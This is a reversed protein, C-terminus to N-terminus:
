SRSLVGRLGDAFLDRDREVETTSRRQLRERERGLTEIEQRMDRGVIDRKFSRRLFTFSSDLRVMEELLRMCPIPEGGDAVTLGGFGFEVHHFCERVREVTGDVVAEFISRAGRSIRLDNLGVYVLDIATKAIESSVDVAEKREILVGARVRGDVFRCLTDAEEAGRIMPLFIDTAGCAIAIEVEDRTGEHLGNVRCLVRTMGVAAMRELDEPTDVNIETDFGEQRRAKGAHEWDVVVGDIGAGLAERGVDASTTFLFLKLADTM